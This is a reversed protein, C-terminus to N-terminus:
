AVKNYTRVLPVKPWEVLKEVPVTTVASLKLALVLSCRRSGKLLSSITPPKVGVLQALKAQTTGTRELWDQLSTFPRGATRSKSM